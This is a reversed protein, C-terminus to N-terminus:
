LHIESCVAEWIGWEDGPVTFVSLNRLNEWLGHILGTNHVSRDPFSVLDWSLNM